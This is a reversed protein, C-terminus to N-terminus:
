VYKRVLKINGDQFKVFLSENLKIVKQAYVNFNLTDLNYRENEINLLKNQITNKYLFIEINKHNKHYLSINYGKGIKALRKEFIM